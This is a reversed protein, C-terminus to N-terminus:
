QGASRAWPCGLLTAMMMVVLMMMMPASRAASKTTKGTETHSAGPCESPWRRRPDPAGPIRTPSSRRRPDDTEDVEQLQDNGEADGDVQQQGEDRGTDEAAHARAAAARQGDQDIEDVDHHRRGHGSSGRWGRGTPTGAGAREGVRAAPAQPSVWVRVAPRTVVSRVQGEVGLGAWLPVEGDPVPRAGALPVRDGPRPAHQDLQPAGPTRGQVWRAPARRVDRPHPLQGLVLVFAFVIIYEGVSNLKATVITSLGAAVLM